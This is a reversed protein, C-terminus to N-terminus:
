ESRRSKASHRGLGSCCYLWASSASMRRLVMWPRGGPKRLTKVKRSTSFREVSSVASASPKLTGATFDLNNRARRWNRSRSLRCKRCFFSPRGAHGAGVKEALKGIVEVALDARLEEFLDAGVGRGAM